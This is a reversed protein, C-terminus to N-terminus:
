VSDKLALNTLKKKKKNSDTRQLNEIWIQDVLTFSWLVIQHTPLPMHRTRQLIKICLHRTSQICIFKRSIIIIINNKWVGQASLGSKAIRLNWAPGGQSTLAQKTIKIQVTKCTCICMYTVLILTSCTCQLKSSKCM